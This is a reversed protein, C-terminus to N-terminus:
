KKQGYTAGAGHKRDFHRDLLEQEINTLKPALELTMLALKAV